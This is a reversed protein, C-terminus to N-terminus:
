DKGGTAFKSGDNNYDVAYFQNLEDFITHLLKGSTTHWHQVKGNANATLIVNKTVAKSNLPRWRLCMIPM